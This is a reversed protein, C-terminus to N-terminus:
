ENIFEDSLSPQLRRTHSTLPASENLFRRSETRFTKVNGALGAVVEALGLGGIVLGALVSSFLAKKGRARLTSM